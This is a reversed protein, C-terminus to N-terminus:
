LVYVRIHIIRISTHTSSNGSQRQEATGGDTAEQDWAESNEGSHASRLRAFQMGLLGDCRHLRLGVHTFHM